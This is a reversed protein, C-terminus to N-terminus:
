QHNYNVQHIFLMIEEDCKLNQGWGWNKIYKLTHSLLPLGDGSIGTCGSICIKTSQLLCRLGDITVNCNRPIGVTHIGKLLIMHADNLIANFSDREPIIEISIPKQIIIVSILSFLKDGDKCDIIIEFSKYKFDFVHSIDWDLLSVSCEANGFTHTNQSNQKFDCKFLSKIM